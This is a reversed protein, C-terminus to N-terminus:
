ESLTERGICAKLVAEGNKINNFLRDFTGEAYEIIGKDLYPNEGRVVEKRKYIVRYGGIIPTTIVISWIDSTASEIYKGEPRRHISPLYRTTGDSPMHIHEETPIGATSGFYDFRQQELKEFFRMVMRKVYRNNKLLINLSQTM